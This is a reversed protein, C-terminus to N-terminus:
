TVMSEPFRNSVGKFSQLLSLSAGLMLKQVSRDCIKSGVMCVCQQIGSTSPCPQSCNECVVGSCHIFRSSDQQNALGTGGGASCECTRSRGPHFIYDECHVGVWEQVIQM